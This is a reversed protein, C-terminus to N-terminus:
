WIELARQVPRVSCIEADPVEVQSSPLAYARVDVVEATTWFVLAADDHAHVAALGPLEFVSQPQVPVAVPGVHALGDAEFALERLLELLLERESELAVGDLAAEPQERPLEPLALDRDLEVGSVPEVRLEVEAVLRAVVVERRDAEEPRAVEREGAQAAVALEVDVHEVAVRGSFQRAPELRPPVVPETEVDACFQQCEDVLAPRALLQHRGVVHVELHCVVEGLFRAQPEGLELERLHELALQEVVLGGRDAEGRAVQRPTVAHEKTVDDAQSLRHHRGREGADELVLHPQPREHDAGLVEDSHPVAVAPPVPEPARAHHRDGLHERLKGLHLRIVEDHDVLAVVQAIPLALAVLRDALVDLRVVRPAHQERRRGVVLLVLVERVLEAEEDRWVAVEANTGLRNESLHALRGKLPPVLDLRTREGGELLAPVRVVPALEHPQEQHAPGPREDLLVVREAVPPALVEDVGVPALGVEWFTDRFVNLVTLRQVTVRMVGGGRQVAVRGDVGDRREAQRPVPEPAVEAGCGVRERRGLLGAAGLVEGAGTRAQGAKGLGVQELSELRASVREQERELAM